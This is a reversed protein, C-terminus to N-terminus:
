LIINKLNIEVSIIKMMCFIFCKWIQKHYIINRKTNLSFKRFSFPIDAYKVNEQNFSIINNSFHNPVELKLSELEYEISAKESVSVAIWAPMDNPIRKLWLLGKATLPLGLNFIVADQNFLSDPLIQSSDLSPLKSLITLEYKDNLLHKDIFFQNDFNKNESILSIKQLENRNVITNFKNKRIFNNREINNKEELEDFYNLDDNCIKVWGNLDKPENFIPKDNKLYFYGVTCLVAFGLFGGSFNIVDSILWESFGLFFLIILINKKPFSAFNSILNKKRIDFM